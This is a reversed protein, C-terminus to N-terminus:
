PNEAIKQSILDSRYEFARNNLKILLYTSLLMLAVYLYLMPIYTGTLEICLTLLPSSFIGALAWVILARGHITSLYRTTFMDALAPPVCAFFGGYTSIITLLCFEFIYLNSTIAISWYMTAGLIAFVLLMKISGLAESLSAWIFRGTMNAIGVLSVFASAAVADFGFTSQMIPSCISLLGIGCFISIFFAIRLYNFQWTSYVKKPKIDPQNNYVVKLVKEKPPKIILSTIFITISYIIGLIIFNAILGYNSVLYEMLMASIISGGGFGCICTGSAIGKHDTFHKILSSVPLVYCAGTVGGVLVSYSFYLLLLSNIYIAYASGLYGLLLIISAPIGIRKVGYKDVKSGLFYATTGLSFIGLSFIFATETLGFGCQAIIPYVLVSFAYIGGVSLHLLVTAIAIIWRNNLM